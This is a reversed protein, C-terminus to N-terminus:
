PKVVVPATAGVFACTGVRAVLTLNLTSATLDGNAILTQRSFRLKMDRLRDFNLHASKIEWEERGRKRKVALPTGKGTGNTLRVSSPDIATANFTATSFVHVTVLRGYSDSYRDEDDSDSDGDRDDSRLAVENPKVRMDIKLPQVDVTVGDAGSDGDKDTVSLNIVQPGVGCARYPGSVGGQESTTGSLGVQRALSQGEGNANVSWKWLKDNVGPDSFRGALNVIQGSMVSVDPGADVLPAVNRITVDKTYENEDNDSDRVKMGVKRAGNDVTACSASSEASFPGFGAGEGCDFAFQFGAARDVSSPDVIDSASVVIASGEDVADPAKLVATPKVNEVIVDVTASASLGHADTVTVKATYEGDDAYTHSGEASTGDIVGDNNFDWTFTLPDKDADTGTAKFDIPSGERGVYHFVEPGGANGGADVSPAHNGPVAFRVADETLAFLEAVRGDVFVAVTGDANEIGQTVRMFSSPVMSRTHIEIANSGEYLILQATVKFDAPIGWSPDLYNEVESLNIILRRNGATGRTDYTVQGFKPSLDGWAVAIMNNVDDLAPIPMGECCGHYQYSFTLFGETSWYFRDYTNGFFTFNFGIPFGVPTGNADYIPNGNEDVETLLCDECERFVSRLTGTEPAFPISTAVIGSPDASSASSLPRAVLRTASPSLSGSSILRAHAANKKELPAISDFKLPGRMNLPALPGIPRAGDTCSAGLIAAAFFFAAQSLRTARRAPRLDRQKSLAKIRSNM